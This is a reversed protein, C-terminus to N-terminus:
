QMPTLKARQGGRRTVTHGQFEILSKCDSVCCPEAALATKKSQLTTARSQAHSQHQRNDLHHRTNDQVLIAARGRQPSQTTEGVPGPRTSNLTSLYAHFGPWQLFGLLCTVM